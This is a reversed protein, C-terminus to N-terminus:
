IGSIIANLTESPRMAVDTKKFDPFYYGGIDQPKGQAGILESNIKEENNKFDEAVNKFHSSLESDQTQEALKQAWYMALYFHSGRNDIQEL